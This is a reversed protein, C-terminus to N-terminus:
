IIRVHGAGYGAAVTEAYASAAEVTQYGARGGIFYGTDDDTVVVAFGRGIGRSIVAATIGHERDRFTMLAPTNM